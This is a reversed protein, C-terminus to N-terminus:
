PQVIELSVDTIIIPFPHGTAMKFPGTPLGRVLSNINGIIADVHLAEAFGVGLSPKSPAKGTTTPMMDMRISPVQVGKADTCHFITVVETAPGIDSANM